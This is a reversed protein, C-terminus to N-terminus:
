RDLFKFYDELDRETSPRYYSQLVVTPTDGLLRAAIGLGKAGYENVLYSGVIHRIKHPHFNEGRLELALVKIGRAFAGADLREGCQAKGPNCPMFVYPTRQEFDAGLEGFLFTRWQDIMRSAEESYTHEYVNTVYARHGVKLEDGKFRVRWRGNGIRALHKHWVMEVWNRVRFPTECSLFFFLGTRRRTFIAFKHRASGTAKFCPPKTEWAKIGIKRLDDPKWSGVDARGAIQGRNAGLRLISKRMDYFTAWPNKGDVLLPLLGKAVLYQSLTALTTAAHSAAIYGGDADLAFYWELYDSFTKTDCLELLGFDAMSRERVLYGIYVNLSGAQKNDITIPRCVTRRYEAGEAPTLIPKLKWTRYGAWEHQLREPWLRTPFGKRNRRRPLNNLLQQAGPGSEPRGYAEFM